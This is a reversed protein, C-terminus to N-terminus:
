FFFFFPVCNILKCVKMINSYEFGTIQSLQTVGKTFNKLGRFRPVFAFRADLEKLYNNTTRPDYTASILEQFLSLLHEWVGKKVQHLLDPTVTQYV